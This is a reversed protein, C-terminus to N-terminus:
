ITRTFYDFSFELSEIVISSDQAKFDSIKIGVPYANVFNWSTLIESEPGLLSITLDSTPKFSFNNISKQIWKLLDSDKLKFMGRKLVINEFKPPSPFRYSFRNEGGEKIELQELKVNLGSVEQFNKETSGYPTSFKVLFSFGVFPYNQNNSFSDM